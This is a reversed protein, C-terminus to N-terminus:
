SPKARSMCDVMFDMQRYLWNLEAAVARLSVWLVNPYSRSVMGKLCECIKGPSYQPYASSRKGDTRHCSPSGVCVFLLPERELM